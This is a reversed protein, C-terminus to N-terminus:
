QNSRGATQLEVLEHMVLLPHAETNFVYKDLPLLEDPAFILYLYKLTEAIFFSHMIDLHAPKKSQVNKIAAFGNPVKAIKVTQLFIDWAWDRYKQDKTWRWM